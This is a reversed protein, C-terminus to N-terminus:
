AARGKEGLLFNDLASKHIRLTGKRDIKQARLRGLRVLKRVSKPGCKLYAAAERVTFVDVSV